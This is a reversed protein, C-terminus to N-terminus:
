EAARTTTSTHGHRNAAGRADPVDGSGGHRRGAAGAAGEGHRVQPERQEQQGERAHVPLLPPTPRCPPTHTLEISTVIFLSVFVPPLPSPLRLCSRLFLRPTSFFLRFPRTLARVKDLVKRAAATQRESLPITDKKHLTVMTTKTAECGCTRGFNVYFKTSGNKDTREQLLGECWWPKLEDFDKYADLEVELEEEM